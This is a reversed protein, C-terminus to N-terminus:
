TFFPLPNNNNDNKDDIDDDDDITLTQIKLGATPVFCKIYFTASIEQFSFCYFIKLLPRLSELILCCYVFM